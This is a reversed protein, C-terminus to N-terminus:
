DQNIKASFIDYQGKKDEYRTSSEVVAAERSVAEDGMNPLVFPASTEYNGGTVPSMMPYDVDDLVDQDGTGGEALIYVNAALDYGENQADQPLRSHSQSLVPVNPESEHAALDVDSDNDATNNTVTAQGSDEESKKDANDEEKKVVAQGQKDSHPSVPSTFGGPAFPNVAGLRAMKEAVRRKRTAEEEADDEVAADKALIQGDAPESKLVIGGLATPLSACGMRESSDSRPRPTLLQSGEEEVKGGHTSLEVTPRRFPSEGTSEDDEDETAMVSPSPPPPTAIESPAASVLNDITNGLETLGIEPQSREPSLMSETEEAALQAEEQTHTSVQPEKADQTPNSSPIPPTEVDGPDSTPKLEKASKKRRPGAARKPLAPIPMSDPSKPIAPSRPPVLKGSTTADSESPLDIHVITLIYLIGIILISAEGGEDMSGPTLLSGESKPLPMKLVTELTNQRVPKANETEDTSSPPAPSMASPPASSGASGSDGPTVLRPKLPIGPKAGGHLGKAAIGFGVPMGVRAGGLRAMRVAIAARRERDQEEETKEEDEGGESTAVGVGEDPVIFMAKSEDNPSMPSREVPSREQSINEAKDGSYETSEEVKKPEIAPAPSVRWVRPKGENSPLPPAASGSTDGFVGKGQLAAMREKLSGGGKTISSMADTASMGSVYAQDDPTQPAEQPSPLFNTQKNPLPPDLLKPKWQGLTGPKPRLPPPM